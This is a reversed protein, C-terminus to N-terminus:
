RRLHGMCQRHFMNRELYVWKKGPPESSLTDALLAPSGPEIGPHPLDRPSPFPLGSWYEHRSFGMSPPAQPDVTWPTAFSHSMVSHSWKKFLIFFVPSYVVSYHFCRHFVARILQSFYPSGLTGDRPWSSGRSPFIAVWELIRAQFIEHVSSDLLSCDMPGYLTLLSQAVLM